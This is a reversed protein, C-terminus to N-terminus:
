SMTFFGTSGDGQLMALVSSNILDVSCVNEPMMDFEWEAQKKSSLRELFEEIRNYKICSQSPFLPANKMKVHCKLGTDAESPHTSHAMPQWNPFTKTERIASLEYQIVLSHSSKLTSSAIPFDLRFFKLHSILPTLLNICSTSQPYATM